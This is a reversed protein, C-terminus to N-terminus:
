SFPVHRVVENSLFFDFVFILYWIQLTKNRTKPSKKVRTKKKSKHQNFFILRTKKPDIQPYEM